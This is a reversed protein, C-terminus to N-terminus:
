DINSKILSDADRFNNVPNDSAFYTDDAMLDDEKKIFVYVHFTNMNATRNESYHREYQVRIEIVDKDTEVKM